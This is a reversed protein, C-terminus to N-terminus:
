KNRRNILKAIPGRPYCGSGAISARDSMSVATRSTTMACGQTWATM